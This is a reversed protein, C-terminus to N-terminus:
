ATGACIDDFMDVKAGAYDDFKQFASRMGLIV